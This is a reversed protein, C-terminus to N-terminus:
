ESGSPEPRSRRRIFAEIAVGLLCWWLTGGIGWAIVAIQAHRGGDWIMSFAVISFPLDVVLLIFFFLGTIGDALGENLRVYSAWMALYLLAHVAPLFYRARLFRAKVLNAM